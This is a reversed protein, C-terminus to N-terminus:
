VMFDRRPLDELVYFRLFNTFETVSRYNRLRVEAASRAYEATFVRKPPVCEHAIKRLQNSRRVPIQGRPLRAGVRFDATRARPRHNGERRARLPRAAHQRAARRSVALGARYVANDLRRELLELLNVGSLGERRTAEKMLKAFQKEKQWFTQSLACCQLLCFRMSQLFM